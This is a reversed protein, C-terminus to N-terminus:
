KSKKKSSHYQNLLLLTHQVSKNGNVLHLKEVIKHLQEPTTNSSIIEYIQEVTNRSATMKMKGIHQQNAM